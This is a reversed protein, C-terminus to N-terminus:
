DRTLNKAKFIYIILERFFGILSASIIFPLLLFNFSIAKFIYLFHVNIRRLLTRLKDKIGRSLANKYFKSTYNHCIWTANNSFSIRGLLIIDFLILYCFNSIISRNPPFYGTFRCQRLKDIRHLGYFASDDDAFIVFYLLRLIINKMDPRVQKRFFGENPNLMDKWRGMATVTSLDSDLLQVLEQLYNPSIEDDDSLWMFYETNAVSLVFKFNNLSGINKEQSILFVEPLHHSYDKIAQHTNKDFGANDSVVLVFNRYTQSAVSALARRILHPRAFTPMGITVRPTVDENKKYFSIQDKAIPLQTNWNLDM